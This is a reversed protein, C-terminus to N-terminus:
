QRAGSKLLKVAQHSNKGRQIKLWCDVDCEMLSVVALVPFIDYQRIQLCYCCQLGAFKNPPHSVPTVYNSSVRYTILAEFFTCNQNGLERGGGV